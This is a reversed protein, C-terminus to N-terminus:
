DGSFRPRRGKGYIMAQYGDNLGFAHDLPVKEKALKYGAYIAPLSELYRDAIAEETFVGGLRAEGPKLAWVLWVWLTGRADPTM